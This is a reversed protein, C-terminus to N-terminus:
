PGTLTFTVVEAEQVAVRSQDPVSVLLPSTDLEAAANLLPVDVAGDLTGWLHAQGERWLLAGLTESAGYALLLVSQVDGELKHGLHRAIPAAWAPTDYAEALVGAWTALQLRSVQEVVIKSDELWPEYVGVRLGGVDRGPLVQTGLLLPSRPQAPCTAECYTANLALINTEPTLLTVVGADTHVESALPTFYALLSSLARSM